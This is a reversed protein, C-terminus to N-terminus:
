VERRMVGPVTPVLIIFGVGSSTVFIQDDGRLSSSTISTISLNFRYISRTNTTQESSEEDGREFTEGRERRVRKYTSLM